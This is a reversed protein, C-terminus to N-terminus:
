EREYYKDERGEEGTGTSLGWGGSIPAPNKGHPNLLHPGGCPGRTRECLCLPARQCWPWRSRGGHKCFDGAAGQHINLNILGAPLSTHRHPLLLWSM